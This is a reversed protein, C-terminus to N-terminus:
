ALYGLERLREQVQAEEEATYANEASEAAPIVLPARACNAPGSPDREFLERLVRGDMSEPVPVGLMHLVTPALDVMAADGIRGGPKVDPGNIVFVGNMRHYGTMGFIKGTM